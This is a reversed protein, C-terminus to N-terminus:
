ETAVHSQWVSSVAITDMFSHLYKTLRFSIIGADPSSTSQFGQMFILQIIEESKAFYFDELRSEGVNWNWCSSVDCLMLVNRAGCIRSTLSKDYQESKFDTRFTPRQRCRVPLLVDLTECKFWHTHIHVAARARGEANIGRLIHSSSRRGKVSSSFIIAALM